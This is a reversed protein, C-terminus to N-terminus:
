GEGGQGTAKRRKLSPPISAGSHSASRARVLQILETPAVVDIKRRLNQIHVDIVNSADDFDYNWVHEAITTRISVQNPHRM